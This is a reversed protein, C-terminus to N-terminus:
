WWGAFETEPVMKIAKSPCVEACIGCGKCYMPDIDYYDKGEPTKKPIRCPEPCYLWCLKDTFTCKAPDTVPRRPRASATPYYPNKDNPKMAPVITFCPTYPNKWSPFKIKGPEILEFPKIEESV